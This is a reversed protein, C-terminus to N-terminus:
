KETVDDPTGEIGDPGPSLLDFTSPDKASPFRYIYPHNWKDPLIKELYPGNWNSDNVQNTLLFDLGEATTPYRGIDECLVDLATRINSIDSRVSNIKTGPGHDLRPVFLALLLAISMLAFLPGFISWRLALTHPLKGSPGSPSQDDHM